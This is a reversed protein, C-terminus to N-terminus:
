ASCFAKEEPDFEWIVLTRWGLAHLAEVNRRDRVVTAAFKASWFRTRSKPMSCNACAEHRHWFCGHVFVALRYRPLVLDPRGPLDKRHLRFRFGSAHLATRVSRELETDRSKVSAMNRSRQASSLKDM